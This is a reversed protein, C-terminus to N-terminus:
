VRFAAVTASEVLLYTVWGKPANDTDRLGWIATSELWKDRWLIGLSDLLNNAKDFSIYFILAQSLSLLITVAALIFGFLSVSVQSATGYLAQRAHKLLKKVTQRGIFGSVLPSAKTISLTALLCGIRLM